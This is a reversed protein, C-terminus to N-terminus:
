YRVKEKIIKVLSTMKISTKSSPITGRTTIKYIDYKGYNSNDIIYNVNSYDGTRRRISGGDPTPLSDIIAIELIEYIGDGLNMKYLHTDTHDVKSNKHIVYSDKLILLAKQFAAYALNRAKIKHAQVIISEVAQSSYKFYIAGITFSVSVVLIVIIEIIANKGRLINIFKM